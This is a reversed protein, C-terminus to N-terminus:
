LLEAAQGKVCLATVRGEKTQGTWRGGRLNCEASIGEYDLKLQQMFHLPFTQFCGLRWFSVPEKKGFSSKRTQEM